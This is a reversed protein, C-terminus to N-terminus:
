VLRATVMQLLPAPTHTHSWLAVARHLTWATCYLATHTVTCTYLHSYGSQELLLHGSNDTIRVRCLLRRYKLCLVPLNLDLGACYSVLKLECLYNTTCIKQHSSLISIIKNSLVDNMNTSGSSKIWWFFGSFCKCEENIWTEKWNFKRYFTFYWGPFPWFDLIKKVLSLWAIGGNPFGADNM